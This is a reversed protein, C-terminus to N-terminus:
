AWLKQLDNQRRADYPEKRVWIKHGVFLTYIYGVKHGCHKCNMEIETM